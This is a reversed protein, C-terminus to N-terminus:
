GGAFFRQLESWPIRATEALIQKKLLAQLKQVNDDAM